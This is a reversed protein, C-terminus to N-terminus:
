GRLGTRHCLLDRLRVDGDALPDALHFFAVHKRVPDDWALKGDDILMALATTTFAKSCSALPFLTDPTIPDKGDLERVGHGKLYVVEDGRVIAVAVGPVEWSKMADRVIADVANADFDAAAAKGAVLVLLVCFLTIKPLKSRMPM